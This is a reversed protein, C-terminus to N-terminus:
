KGEERLVRWAEALTMRREDYVDDELVRVGRRAFSISTQGTNWNKCQDIVVLADDRTM